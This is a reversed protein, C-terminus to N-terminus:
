YGEELEINYSKVNDVEAILVLMDDYRNEIELALNEETFENSLYNGNKDYLRISIYIEDDLNYGREILDRITIGMKNGRM